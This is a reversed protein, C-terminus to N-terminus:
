RKFVNGFMNFMDLQMEKPREEPKKEPIPSNGIPSRDASHDVYIEENKPDATIKIEKEPRLGKLLQENIKRREEMYAKYSIYLARFEKYLGFADDKAFRSWFRRDNESQKISATSHLNRILKQNHNNVSTTNSDNALAVKLFPSGVRIIEQYIAYLTNRTIEDNLDLQGKKMGKTKSAIHALVEDDYVCELRKEGQMQYTIFVKEQPIGMDDKQTLVMKLHTENIFNCTIEDIAALSNCPKITFSKPLFSQKGQFDLYRKQGTLKEGLILSYNGYEEM